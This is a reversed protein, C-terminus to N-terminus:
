LRPLTRFAHILEVDYHVVRKEHFPLMAKIPFKYEKGRGLKWGNKQMMEKIFSSAKKLHLSYIADGIEMAKKVFIKDAGRNSFQAGFPPNMIVTDVKEEFNLIDMVRFEVNVPFKKGEKKAMEIMNEDIDIGVVRKAGLLAAGIAFIGTGCGADLVEKEEVDGNYYAHWLVDAAISAPTPYQEMEAKISSPQEIKQLMMELKKKVIKNKSCIFLMSCIM